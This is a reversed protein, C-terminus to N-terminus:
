HTSRGVFLGAVVLDSVLHFAHQHLDTPLLVEDLLVRWHQWDRAPHTVVKQLLRLVHAPPLTHIDLIALLIDVTVGDIINEILEAADGLARNTRRHAHWDRADVLDLTNTIHQGATHLLADHLRTLLHDEQRRVGCGVRARALNECHLHVMLTNIKGIWAVINAQVDFPQVLVIHRARTVDHYILLVGSQALGPLEVCLDLHKVDGVFDLNPVRGNTEHTAPPRGATDGFELPLHAFLRTSLLHIIGVRELRVLHRLAAELWLLRQNAVCELISPKDRTANMSPFPTTINPFTIDHSRLSSAADPPLFFHASSPPYEVLQAHDYEKM